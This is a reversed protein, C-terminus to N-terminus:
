SDRGLHMLMMGVSAIAFPILISYNGDAGVIGICMLVFGVTTM